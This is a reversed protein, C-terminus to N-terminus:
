PANSPCNNRGEFADLVALVDLLTIVGDGECPALDFDDLTCDEGYVGQFADLVALIDGLDVVGDRRCAGGEGVIDGYRPGGVQYHILREDTLGLPDTVRFVFGHDGMDPEAPTWTYAVGLGGIAGVDNALEFGAPFVDGIHALVYNLDAANVEGDAVVDFRPDYPAALAQTILELDDAGIIGDGDFDGALDVTYELDEADIDAAFVHFLSQGGIVGPWPSVFPGVLTPPHNRTSTVRVHHPASFDDGDSATLTVNFVAGEPLGTPWFVEYVALTADPIGDGNQDFQTPGATLIQNLGPPGDTTTALLDITDEVQDDRIEVTFSGPKDVEPRVSTPVDVFYPPLDVDGIYVKASTTSEYEPARDNAASIYLDYVGPEVGNLTVALTTVVTEERPVILTDAVDVVWGPPADASLRFVENGCRTDNNTVAVDFELTDRAEGVGFFPTFTVSPAARECRGLIVDNSIEVTFNGDPTITGATIRVGIQTDYYSEGPGLDDIRWPGYTAYHIEIKNLLEKRHSVYYYSDSDYLIKVAQIASTAYELPALQVTMPGMYDYFAIDESAFYGALEKNPANFHGFGSGMVDHTDGYTQFQCADPGEIGFFCNTASGAHGVGLNHGLEHIMTYLSNGLVVSWRGVLAALGSFNCGDYPGVVMIRQYADFDVDPNATQAADVAALWFPYAQCTSEIDLTYVGYVDGHEGADALGTLWTQGLSNERYFADMQALRTTATSLSIPAPSADHGALIVATTQRQLGDLSQSESRRASSELIRLGGPETSVAIRSVGGAVEDSRRGHVQVFAGNELTPWPQQDPSQLLHYRKGNSTVLYTHIRERVSEAEFDDVVVWEVHGRQIVDVSSTDEHIRQWRASDGDAAAQGCLWWVASVLMTCQFVTTPKRLM